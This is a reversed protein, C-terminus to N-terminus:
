LSPTVEFIRVVDNWTVMAMLLMILLIGISNIIVELKRNFPSGTFMEYIVFIMRGGDLAPFPLINLVALSLSVIAVLRLYVMVGEQLSTYTMQAIGVVGTVGKPVIRERVLSSVLSGVGRMTAVTATWTERFALMVAGVISPNNGHADIAYESVAIGTKGQQVSVQIEKQEQFAKGTLLSYRVRNKGRQLALVEEVTTVQVGDVSRLISDRPVRAKEAATGPLIDSVYLGWDVTVSGRGSAERLDDVSFYTPVWNLMWFGFFFIVFALLFNMFVGGVLIGLRARISAHAFSGPLMREEPDMSTEGQLRVFGGFPIWNLTFVTGQWKFLKMLMPPLGFGFEEVNVKAYRACIFHGFEHIIVLVTLLAIFALASLVMTM